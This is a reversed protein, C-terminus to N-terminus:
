GKLKKVFQYSANDTDLHLLAKNKFLNTVSQSNQLLHIVDSKTSYQEIESFRQDVYDRIEARLDDQQSTVDASPTYVFELDLFNKNKDAFMVMTLAANLANLSASEQTYDAGVAVCETNHFVGVTYLPLNSHEGDVQVIRLELPQPLYKMLRSEVENKSSYDVINRFDINQYYNLISSQVFKNATKQDDFLSLALFIGGMTNDYFELPIKGLTTKRILDHLCLHKYLSLSAKQSLCNLPSSLKHLIDIEIKPYLNIFYQALYAGLEKQGLDCLKNRLGTTAKDPNSSSHSFIILMATSLLASACSSDSLIREDEPMYTSKTGIRKLFCYLETEYEFAENEQIHDPIFWKSDSTDRYFKLKQLRENEIVEIDKYTLGHGQAFTFKTATGLIRRANRVTFVLM